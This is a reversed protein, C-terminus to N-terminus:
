AAIVWDFLLYITLSLWTAMILWYVVPNRHREVYELFHTSGRWLDPVVWILFLIGWIWNAETVVAVAVMALGLIARWRITQTNHTEGVTHSNRKDEMIYFAAGQSDNALLAPNKGVAQEVLIEGHNQEIKKAANYLNSVSFYVGWYEKSGKFENSSVQIGAIPNTSESSAFIEYRDIDNTEKIQWGFVHTYFSQVKALDSVHLENWVVCYPNAGVYRSSLGGGEYCTFGAGAPDRILVIVGGGPASQSEIEITAGHRAADHVVNAISDVQIYPMWFSPMGMTQFNEPMTYLGAASHENSQCM